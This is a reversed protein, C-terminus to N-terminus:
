VSYNITLGILFFRNAALCSITVFSSNIGFDYHAEDISQTKTANDISVTINSAEPAQPWGTMYVETNLVISTINIEYPFVFTMSGAQKGGAFKITNPTTGSGFLGGGSSVGKVAIDSLVLQELSPVYDASENTNIDKFNIVGVHEGPEPLDIPGGISSSEGLYIDISYFYEVSDQTLYYLEVYVDKDVYVKSAKHYFYGTGTIPTFTDPDFFSAKETRDFIYNKSTFATQVATLSAMDSSYDTEVVIWERSEGDGYYEEGTYVDYVEDFGIYPVLEGLEVLMKQAESPLWGDTESEDAMELYANIRIQPLVDLVMQVIDVRLVLSPFAISSIVYSDSLFSPDSHMSEIFQYGNAEYVSCIEALTLISSGPTFEVTEVVIDNQYTVNQFYEAGTIVTYDVGFDIFPIIQGLQENILEEEDSKWNGLGENIEWQAVLTFSKIVPLSFDYSEGDRYWDLFTHNTRKPDTPRLVIDGDNVEVVKDLTLGENYDFTVKYKEAPEIPDLPKECSSGILGFSLALLPIFLFKKM